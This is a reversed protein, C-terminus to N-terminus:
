SIVGWQAAWVFKVFYLLVAGTFTGACLGCKASRLCVVECVHRTHEEEVVFADM